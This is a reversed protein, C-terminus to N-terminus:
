YRNQFMLVLTCIGYGVVWSAAAFAAFTIGVQVDSWRLISHSRRRNRNTPPKANMTRTDHNM